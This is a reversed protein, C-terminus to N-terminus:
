ADNNRQQLFYIDNPSNRKQNRLLLTKKCNILLYKKGGNFHLTLSFQAVAM